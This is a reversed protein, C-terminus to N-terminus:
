EELEDDGRSFFEQQPHSVLSATPICLLDTTRKSKPPVIPTRRVAAAEPLGSRTARCAIERLGTSKIEFDITKTLFVKANFTSKNEFNV